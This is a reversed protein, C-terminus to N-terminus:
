FFTSLNKAQLVNQDLIIRRHLVKWAGDVKRLTDYRKGVFTYTETEVRNLYTLFRCSTKVESAEAASPDAELLQINTLMHTTRSLPEEAYHVGTLIQEVRKTVTWKDENFWSIGYEEKTDERESHQGFKVNHRMPMFYRLDEHLMDLWENFRRNDLHEAEDYYYEEIERRLLYYDDDRQIRKTEVIADM